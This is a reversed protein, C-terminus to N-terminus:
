SFIAIGLFLHIVWKTGKLGVINLSLCDLGSFDIKDGTGSGIADFIVDHGQDIDGAFKYTDDGAGGQLWNWNASDPTETLALSFGQPSL